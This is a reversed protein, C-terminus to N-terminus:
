QKSCYETAINIINLGKNKAYSCTYQTGGPKGDYYAILLSAHDVLYENRTHYTGSQYKESLAFAYDSQKYVQLARAKWEPTWNSNAFYKRMFPAVSICCLGALDSRLELVAEAALVDWGAMMGHIFIRYGKAYSDTITRKLM